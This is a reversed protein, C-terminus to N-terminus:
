NYAKLINRSWNVLQNNSRLCFEEIGDEAAGSFSCCAMALVLDPFINKM